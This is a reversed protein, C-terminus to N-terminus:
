SYGRDGAEQGVLGFWQRFPGASDPLTKAHSSGGEKPCTSAACSIEQM